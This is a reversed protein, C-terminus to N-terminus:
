ATYGLKLDLKCRGLNVLGRVNLQDYQTGVTAGNIEVEYTTDANLTLNSCTLIGASAGPSITGLNVTIDAVRGTGRLTGGDLITPCSVITGDVELTGSVVRTSNSHACTGSLTLTGAGIKVLDGPGSITGSFVTSD